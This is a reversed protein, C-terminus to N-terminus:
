IKSKLYQWKADERWDIIIPTACVAFYILYLAVSLGDTTAGKISPYYQWYLLRHASGVFIALSAALLGILVLGDRKEFKYISFATRGPLGYGRSKMSDATDIANELSWTVMISLIGAANKIRKFVSGTSLDRGISAQAEAVLSAQKKFRPVFRLTMSLVLSLAPIILGFLYIFKDSSIIKNFCRFWLIISALLAGASLGYAMSELTLPNGSPLYTLITVGEHSFMPNIIVAFLIILLLYKFSRVLEQRGELYVAYYLACGLSIAQCIPHRLLMTSGITLAFYLFNVLPHFGYFAKM